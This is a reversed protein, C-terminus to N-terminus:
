NDEYGYDETKAFYPAFNAILVSRDVKCDPFELWEELKGYIQGLQNAVTQEKKGLAEAIAANDLGLCAQRMVEQLAPSLWHNVFEGKRKFDSRATLRHHWAVMEAPDDLKAVKRVLTDAERWLLIPLPLLYVEDEAGAHLKRSTGPRWGETVLYWAKDAPGFLLQSVVMGMVSMVKRGGALSLHLRPGRKRVRRVEKYLTGLLAQLDGAGRFDEVAGKDGAVVRPRLTIDPYAASFENQIIELAETIKPDTTYIITVEGIEFGKKLLQDLAITIVQPETGLTAIMAEKCM